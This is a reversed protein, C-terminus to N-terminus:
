GEIRDLTFRRPNEVVPRLRRFIGTSLTSIQGSFRTPVDCSFEFRYRERAPLRLDLATLELAISSCQGAVGLFVRVRDGPVYSFYEDPWRNGGILWEKIRSSRLFPRREREMLVRGAADGFFYPLLAPPMSNFNLGPMRRESFWELNWDTDRWAVLRRMEGASRLFDNRPPALGRTAYLRREAGRLRPFDDRDRYDALVDLLRRVTSANRGTRELFTQMPLEAESNLGILGREDQLAFVVDGFGQYPRGDPILEGGVANPDITGEINVIDAVNETKIVFGATTRRSSILLYRIVAETAVLDMRDAVGDREDIARRLETEVTDDISAVLLFVVVLTWLTAVLM